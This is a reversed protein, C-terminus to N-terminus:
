LTYIYYMYIYYLIGMVGRTKHTSAKYSVQGVNALHIQGRLHRLHHEEAGRCQVHDMPGYPAM